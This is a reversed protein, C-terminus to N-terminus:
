EQDGKSFRSSDIELVIESVDADDQTAMQKVKLVLERCWALDNAMKQGFDRLKGNEIKCKELERLYEGRQNDSVVSPWDASQAALYQRATESVLEARESPVSVCKKEIQYELTRDMPRTVIVANLARKTPLSFPKDLEVRPNCHAFGSFYLNGQVHLALPGDERTLKGVLVNDVKDSELQWLSIEFPDDLRTAVSVIQEHPDMLCFHIVFRENSQKPM